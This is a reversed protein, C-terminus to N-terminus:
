IQIYIIHTIYLKSNTFIASFERFIILIELVYLFLSRFVIKWSPKRKNEFNEISLLIYGSNLLCKEIEALEKIKYNLINRGEVYNKFNRMNNLLKRFM